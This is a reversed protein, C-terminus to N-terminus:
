LTLLVPPYQCLVVFLVFQYICLALLITVSAADTILKFNYINVLTLSPNTSGDLTQMLHLLLNETKLRGGINQFDNWFNKFM